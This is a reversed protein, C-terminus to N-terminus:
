REGFTALPNELHEAPTSVLPVAHGLRDIRVRM